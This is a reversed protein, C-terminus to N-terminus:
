ILGADSGRHGLDRAICKSIGTAPPGLKGNFGIFRLLKTDADAILAVADGIQLAYEVSLIARLAAHPKYDYSSAPKNVCRLDIDSRVFPSNDFKTLIKRPM